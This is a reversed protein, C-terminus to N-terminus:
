PEQLQSHHTHIIVEPLPLGLPTVQCEQATVHLGGPLQSRPAARASPLHFDPSPSENMLGQELNKHARVQLDRWTGGQQFGWCHNRLHRFPVSVSFVNPKSRAVANLHSIGVGKGNAWPNQVTNGSASLCTEGGGQGFYSNALYKLPHHHHKLAAGIGTNQNCLVGARGALHLTLTWSFLSDLPFGFWLGEGFTLREPRERGSLLGVHHPAPIPPHEKDLSRGVQSKMCSLSKPSM